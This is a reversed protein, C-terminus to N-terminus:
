RPAAARPLPLVVVVGAAAFLSGLVFVVTFARRGAAALRCGLPRQPDRHRGPDRSWTLAAPVTGAGFVVLSAFLIRRKGRRDGLRALVPTMVAGSLLYHTFIWAAWDGSVEFRRQFTPLAPAVLTQLMGYAPVAVSLAAIVRDAPPGTDSRGGESLVPSPATTREQSM